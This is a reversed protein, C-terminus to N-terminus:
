IKLNQYNYHDSFSIRLSSPRYDKRLIPFNESLQALIDPNGDPAATECLRKDGLPRAEAPQRNPSDFVPIGANGKAM